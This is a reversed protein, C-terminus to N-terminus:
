VFELVEETSYVKVKKQNKLKKDNSWIGCGLKLALAFYITDAPDPSIKEAEMMLDLYEEKPIVIIVEKLTHMIQIFEERTRSTKELILPEHEFFEELIYEPVYLRFGDEFLLEATLGKRILASFLINADVVLEM